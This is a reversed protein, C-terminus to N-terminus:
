KDCVGEDSRGTRGKNVERGCSKIMKRGRGDQTFTSTHPDDDSILVVQNPDSRKTISLNLSDINPKALTTCSSEDYRTRNTELTHRIDHKVDLIEMLLFTVRLAKTCRLM